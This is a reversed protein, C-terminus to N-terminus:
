KYDETESDLIDVKMNESATKLLGNIIRIPEGNSMIYAGNQSYNLILPERYTLTKDEKIEWIGRRGQLATSPIHWINNLKPGLIEVEVFRNPSPLTHAAANHVDIFVDTFRTQSNIESDIRVVFGNQTLTEGNHPYTIRAETVGPTIWKLTTDDVPVVIETDSLKYFTGYSQGAQVFDGVGIDAELVKGPFPFEIQTRELNLEADRLQAKASQLATKAQKLQPKRAVLAPIKKDPNIRNWEEVAIEAQAQELELTAEAQALTAQAQALANEYNLSDIKILPTHAAFAGGDTLNESVDTVRGSIQPTINIITEAKVVGTKSFILQETKPEITIAQVLTKRKAIDAPKDFDTDAMLTSIMFCSIIFILVISLQAYAKVASVKEELEPIDITENNESPLTAHHEQQEKEKSAEQQERAKGVLESREEIVNQPPEKLKDDKPITSPKIDSAKISTTNPSKKNSPASIVVNNRRRRKPPTKKPPKNDDDSSPAM